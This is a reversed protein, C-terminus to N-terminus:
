LNELLWIYFPSSFELKWTGNWGLDVCDTIETIQKQQLDEYEAPYIPYYKSHTWLLTGLDIDDVEISSINLVMDEVIIGNDVKTDSSLKNLLFLQLSQTGEIVEVDFEIYQVEGPSSTLVGHYFEQESVLIRVLPQKKDSTGKLGIKFHLKEKEEM